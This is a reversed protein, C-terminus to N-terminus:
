GDSSGNDCEGGVDGRQVEGGGDRFGGEVWVASWWWVQVVSGKLDGEREWHAHEVVMGLCYPDRAIPNTQVRKEM